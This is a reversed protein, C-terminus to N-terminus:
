NADKGQSQQSDESTTPTLPESTDSSSEEGRQVAKAAQVSRNRMGSGESQMELQQTPGLAQEIDPERASSRGRPSLFRPQREAAGPGDESAVASISSM